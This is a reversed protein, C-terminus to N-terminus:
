SYPKCFIEISAPAYVCLSVEPTLTPPALLIAPTFAPAYGLGKKTSEIDAQTFTQYATYPNKIYKEVDLGCKRNKIAMKLEEVWWEETFAAPLLVHNNTGFEGFPILIDKTRRM